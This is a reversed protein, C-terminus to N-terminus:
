SNPTVCLENPGASREARAGDSDTLVNRVFSATDTHTMRPHQPISTRVPILYLHIHLLLRRQNAPAFGLLLFLLALADTARLGLRAPAPLPARRYLSVVRDGHSSWLHRSWSVVAPTTPGAM